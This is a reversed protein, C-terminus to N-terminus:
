GSGVFGVQAEQLARTIADKMSDKNDKEVFEHLADTLDQLRAPPCPPLFNPHATSLASPCNTRRVSACLM